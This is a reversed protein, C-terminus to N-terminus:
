YQHKKQDAIVKDIIQDVARADKQLLMLLVRAPGTPERIGQEWNRLTTIAFGYRTAFSEQTLEMGLRIQQVDIHDPIHVRAGERKGQSYELAENMGQILKQGLSKPKM